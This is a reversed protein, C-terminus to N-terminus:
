KFRNSFQYILNVSESPPIVIRIINNKSNSFFELIKVKNWFIESQYSELTSIKFNVIKLEKKLNQIREDISNKSGEFRFATLAGGYKLDNLKFTAEINMTCGSCKPETPFFTAGSIDNSSSISRELLEVAM